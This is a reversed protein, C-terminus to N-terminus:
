AGAGGASGMAGLGSSLQAANSSSLGPPAPGPMPGPGGIYTPAKPGHSHPTGQFLSNLTASDFTM